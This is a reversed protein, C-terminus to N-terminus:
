KQLKFTYDNKRNPDVSRDDVACRWAEAYYEQETPTYNMGQLVVPINAALRGTQTEVILVNM